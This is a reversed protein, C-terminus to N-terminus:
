LNAGALNISGTRRASTQLLREISRRASEADIVGNINIVTGNGGLKNTPIIQGSTNPVFVEKGFEGVRTPVGARVTGGMANGTVAKGLSSKAFKPGENPNIILFDLIGGGIKKAKSYASAVANIGNAVSEMANALNTLTDESNAANSGTLAGFLKAFAEAVSRLSEGLSYGGSKGDLDRSIAKVKGSLGAQPDDGSFGMAVLNVQDLLNKMIPLIKVGISEKMEDFRETVIALKGAYTNTNAQAAGGFLATLKDQAANFDKTKIISADLPVGLKTLAGINGNYAKSLGLSVTELDKGTAASVDIALSTLEQAKTVSGTARALNALAPRLKTDSIGYALQQKGIWEETAAIQKDTAKTTNQLAKALKVQSAEDEVAAKVGDVGIKVAYAAAAVGAVAFAKAMQKSYKGIKGSLTQTDKDAQKLGRGFQDVDALLNLKLTRIDAM